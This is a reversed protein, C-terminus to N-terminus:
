ELVRLLAWKSSVSHIVAESRQLERNLVDEFGDLTLGPHLTQFRLLLISGTGFRLVVAREMIELSVPSGLTSGEALIEFIKDLLFM